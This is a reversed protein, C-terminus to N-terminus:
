LMMRGSIVTVALIMLECLETFYGAIDGTIGGFHRISIHRCYMFVLVSAFLCMIGRVTGSLVVAAVFLEAILIAIVKKDASKATFAAMGDKKAEPFTIVGIASLIRSIVYGFAVLWIDGEELETFLCFTLLIYLIGHMLAFAGIHPDKLIRLKEERERRSFLADSTDIFGDFHIGGSIVLPLATLIGARFISGFGLYVLARSCLVSLLGIVVGVLPFFCLTYRMNKESWEARPMPISSYLSFAIM